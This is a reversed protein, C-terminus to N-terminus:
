SNSKESIHAEDSSLWAKIFEICLYEIYEIDKFYACFM